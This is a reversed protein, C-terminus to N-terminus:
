GRIENGAPKRSAPDGAASLHNLLREAAQTVDDVAKQFAAENASVGKLASLVSDYTGGFNEYMELVVFSMGPCQKTLHYAAGVGSIGAGVILVDFHEVTAARPKTATAAQAM